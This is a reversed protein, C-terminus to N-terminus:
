LVTIAGAYFASAKVTLVHIHLCTVAVCAQVQWPRRVKEVEVAGAHPNEARCTACWIHLGPTFPQAHMGKFVATFM